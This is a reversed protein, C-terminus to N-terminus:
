LVGTVIRRAPADSLKASDLPSLQNHAIITRVLSVYDQGKESYALLGGALPAGRPRESKQRAAARADRFPKYARNTNLNQMYARISGLPTDFNAIRYDGLQQRQQGPVIGDGYTWQGYLANGEIAFRSSGYASEIAAQALALSPPVMDVRRLLRDIARTDPAATAGSIATVRYQGALEKLWTVESRSVGKGAAIRVRVEQLKARDALVEDNAMLVMPLLARFFLSKKQDVTLGAAWDEPISSVVFRPVDAAGIRVAKKTYGIETFYDSLQTASTIQVRGTDLAARAFLAGGAVVCLGFLLWLLRLKMSKVTSPNETGSM